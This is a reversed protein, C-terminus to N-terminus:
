GRRGMGRVLARLDRLVVELTEINKEMQLVDTWGEVGEAEIKRKMEELTKGDEAIRRRVQNELKAIKRRRRNRDQTERRYEARKRPERATYSVFFTPPRPAPRRPPMTHATSYM